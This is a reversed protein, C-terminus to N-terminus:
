AVPKHDQTRAETSSSEFVHRNRFTAAFVLEVEKIRIMRYHMLISVIGVVYGVALGPILLMPRTATCIQLTIVGIMLLLSIGLAYMMGSLYRSLAEAAYVEAAARHDESAIVAKCFNFYSRNTGSAVRGAWTNDYFALAAPPLSRECVIRMHGIFPFRESAFLKYTGPEDGHAGKDFRRLWWASWRDPHDCRYLRLLVGLLYGFTAAILTAPVPSSAAAVILRRSDDDTWPVVYLCLGINTLLFMGPIFIEFLGKAAGIAPPNM